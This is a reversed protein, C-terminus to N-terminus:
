LTLEYGLFHKLENIIIEFVSSGNQEKLPTTYHFNCRIEAANDSTRVDFSRIAGDKLASFTQSNTSYIDVKQPNIIGAVKTNEFDEKSFTLNLNYGVASIPTYPLVESLHRYIQEMKFLVDMSKEATRIEIGRDTMLLQIGKWTYNLNMQKENIAINMTDGEPMSFVNSSVWDPTFIRPNWSGVSVISATIIM